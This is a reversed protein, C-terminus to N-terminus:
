VNEKEKKKRNIKVASVACIIMLPVFNTFYRGSTEWFLLFTLIGLCALRPALMTLNQNIQKEGLCTYVGSLMFLYIILLMGTTLCQYSSFKKGDYLIYRHIWREHIPNDDLFDSLAFTGDGFCVLMKNMFLETMGGIGLSRVREGIRELCASNREEASFSRTYTYDDPNYSGRNQMGMMVWHLYPTKLERSEERDLHAHYIDANLIGFGSSVAIICIAAFLCVKKWNISLLADIIVAVFIILVTFKIIMGLTLTVAMAVVFIIRMKLTEQEKYHLYLYYFLVPFLLSLSDTYFAAGMFTFPLCCAFFVLALVGATSDHLKKCTLSVTLATAALFLSNLVIGVAFFDSIGFLSAIKFVIHLVAMAGLNNPFYGYYEYYDSFTGEEVWQIAGGYVADMDFTPTFRLLFGNVLLIIGYVCIFVALIVKYHRNIGDRYRNLLFASLTIIGGWILMATLLFITNHSHITDGFLVKCFVLGFAFFFIGYFIKYVAPKLKNM